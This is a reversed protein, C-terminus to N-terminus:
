SPYSVCGNSVIESGPLSELLIHQHNQWEVIAPLYGPIREKPNQSLVVVRFYEKDRTRQTIHPTRIRDKSDQIDPNLVKGLSM